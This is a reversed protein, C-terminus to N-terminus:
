NLIYQTETQWGIVPRSREAEADVAEVIGGGMQASIFSQFGDIAGGGGSFARAKDTDRFTDFARAVHPYVDFNILEAERALEGSLAVLAFVEAARKIQPLGAVGLSPKARRQRL